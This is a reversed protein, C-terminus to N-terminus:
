TCAYPSWIELAYSNFVGYNPSVVARYGFAGSTFIVRSPFWHTTFAPVWIRPHDTWNVNVTGSWGYPYAPVLRAYVQTATNIPAYVIGTFYGYGNGWHTHCRHWASSPVGSHASAPPSLALLTTFVLLGALLLRGKRIVM